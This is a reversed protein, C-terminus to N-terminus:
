KSKLQSTSHASFYDDVLTIPNRINADFCYHSYVALYKFIILITLLCRGRTGVYDTLRKLKETLSGTGLLDKTLANLRELSELLRKQEATKRRLDTVRQELEEITPKPSVNEIRYKLENKDHKKQM